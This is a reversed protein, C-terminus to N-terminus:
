SQSSRAPYPKDLNLFTPKGRSTVAYRTSAVRGCVTAREGIHDKAEAATLKKVQPSQAHGGFSTLLLISALVAGPWRKVNM